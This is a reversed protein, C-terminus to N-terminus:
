KFSVSVASNCLGIDSLSKSNLESHPIPRPPFGASLIIDETLVGSALAVLEILSRAISGSNFTRVCRTGSPFRIQITTKPKSDDISPYGLNTPAVSEQRSVSSSGLSCGFGHFVGHTDRPGVPSKTITNADLDADFKRDIDTLELNIAGGASRM